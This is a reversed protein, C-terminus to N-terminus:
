NGEEKSEGDQGANGDPDEPASEPQIETSNVPTGEASNQVEVPNQEEGTVQGTDNPDGKSSRSKKRTKTAEKNAVKQNEEVSDDEHYKCLNRFLLDAARKNDTIDIIDGKDYFVEKDKIFKDKLRKLVKLKM